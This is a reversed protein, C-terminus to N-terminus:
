VEPLNWGDKKREHIIEQVETLQLAYQVHECNDNECEDCNIDKPTFTVHVLINGKPSRDFIKIGTRDANIHEFRPLSETKSLPNREMFERIAQKAIEARSTFGKKGMYKDMEDTLSEPLKVTNHESRRTKETM